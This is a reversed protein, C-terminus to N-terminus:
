QEECCYADEWWALHNCICFSFFFFVSKRMTRSNWWGGVRTQEFYTLINKKNKAAREPFRKEILAKTLFFFPAPPHRTNLLQWWDSSHLIQKNCLWCGTASQRVSPWTKVNSQHWSTITMFVSSFVAFMIRDNLSISSNDLHPFLM